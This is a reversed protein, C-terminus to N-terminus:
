AAGAVLRDYGVLDPAAVDITAIRADSVQVPAVAVADSSRQRLLMRITDQSPSGLRLAELVACELDDLSHEELLLLVRIWERDPKRVKTRLAERLESLAPPLQLQQVATSEPIARHKKELLRLVHRVDLVYTWEATTRRHAAVSRDGDVVEVRDWHLKALLARRALESPVSYRSRDVTVLACKAAM